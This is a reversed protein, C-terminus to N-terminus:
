RLILFSGTTMTGDSETRYFYRGPPLHELGSVTLEAGAGGDGAEPIDHLRMLVSGDAASVETGVLKGAYREPLIIQLNESTPNPFARGQFVHSGETYHVGSVGNVIVSCRFYGPEEGNQPDIEVEVQGTDGLVGGAVVRLVFFTGVHRAMDVVYTDEAPAACFEYHCLSTGWSSDPFDTELRRIRVHMSDDSINRLLVWFQVTDGEFALSETSDAEVLFEPKPVVGVKAQLEVLTPEPDGVAGISLVIRASGTDGLFVHVQPGGADGPLLEYPDLTDVAKDYCKDPACVSTEWTSDPYDNVIRIIQVDIPKGTTNTAAINFTTYGGAPMTRSPREPVVELASQAQLRHMAGFWGLILVLLTTRTGPFRYRLFTMDLTARTSTQMDMIDMTDTAGAAIM